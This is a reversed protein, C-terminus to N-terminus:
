AYGLAWKFGLQVICMLAVHYHQEGKISNHNLLSKKRAPRSSYVSDLPGFLYSVLPGFFHVFSWFLLFFCPVLYSQKFM